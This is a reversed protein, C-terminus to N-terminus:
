CVHGKRYSRILRDFGIKTESTITGAIEAERLENWSASLMLAAQQIAPPITTGTTITIQVADPRDYTEPFDNIPLVVAAQNNALLYYNSSEWETLVNDTDYYNIELESVPTKGISLVSPFSSETQTWVQETWCTNTEREIFDRTTALLLTLRTDETTTDIALHSKLQALTVLYTSSPTTLNLM